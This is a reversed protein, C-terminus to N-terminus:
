PLTRNTAALDIVAGLGPRSRTEDKAPFERRRRAKMIPRGDALTWVPGVAGAAEPANARSRGRSTHDFRM